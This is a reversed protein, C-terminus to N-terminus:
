TFHHDSKGFVGWQDTILTRHDKLVIQVCVCVSVCVNDLSIVSNHKLDGKELDILSSSGM